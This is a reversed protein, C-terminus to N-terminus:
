LIGMMQLLLYASWLFAIILLVLFIYTAFEISSRTM